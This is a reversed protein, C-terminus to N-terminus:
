KIYRMIEKQLITSSRLSVRLRAGLVAKGLGQLGHRGLLVRLKKLVKLLLKTTASNGRLLLEKVKVALNESEERSTIVELEDPVVEQSIVSDLDSFHM